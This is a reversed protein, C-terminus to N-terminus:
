RPDPRVGPVRERFSDPQVCQPDLNCAIADREIKRATELESARKAQLEQEIANAADNRGKWYIGGVIALIAVAGGIYRGIPSLIFAIL